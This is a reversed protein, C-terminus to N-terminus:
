PRRIDAVESIDFPSLCVCTGSEQNGGLVYLKNGSVVEVLFGVHNVDTSGRLRFTIVDGALAHPLDTLPAVGVGVAHGWPAVWHRAGLAGGPPASVTAASGPLTNHRNLTWAAFAGCWATSDGGSGGNPEASDLYELIRPNSGERRPCHKELQGLEGIAWDLWAAPERPLVPASSTFSLIKSSLTSDLENLAAPNRRALEFTKRQHPALPAENKYRYLVSLARLEASFRTENSGIRQDFQLMAMLKLALPQVLEHVEGLILRGGPRTVPVNTPNRGVIRDFTTFDLQDSGGLGQKSSFEAIKSRTPADLIGTAPAGVTQQVAIIDRTVLQEEFDNRALSFPVPTGRRGGGAGDAPVTDPALPAAPANGQGSRRSGDEDRRTGAARLNVVKGLVDFWFPAGLAVFFGTILCGVFWLLYDLPEKSELALAPIGLTPSGEFTASPCLSFRSQRTEGPAVKGVEVPKCFQQRRNREFLGVPLQVQGVHSRAVCEHFSTRSAGSAKACEEFVAPDALFLAKLARTPRKNEILELLGSKASELAISAQRMTDRVAPVDSASIASRVWSSVASLCKYHEKLANGANNDDAEVRQQEISSLLNPLVVLWAGPNSLYRQTSKSEPAPNMMERCHAGSGSNKQILDNQNFRFTAVKKDVFFAENLRTIADVIGASVRVEPSTPANGSGSVADPTGTAPKGQPFQANVTAALDALGRRLDPSSSLQEAIYFTDVNLAVAVGLALRLSWKQSERKYWGDSRDGIETFWRAIAAEFEPWSAERGAMLGRLSGWVKATSATPAAAKDAVFATPSAYRDAPHGHQGDENLEILLARAFLDAPINSPGKDVLVGKGAPEDGSSLAYILPNEFLKKKLDESHGVAELVLKHMNSVRRMFWRGLITEQLKMVLLALTIYILVLGLVVELIANDM